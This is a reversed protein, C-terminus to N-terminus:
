KYNGFLVTEFTSEVRSFLIIMFSLVTLNPNNYELCFHTLVIMDCIFCLFGHFQCMTMIILGGDVQVDVNFLLDMNGVRNILSTHFSIVAAQDTRFSNLFSSVLCSSCGAISCILYLPFCCIGKDNHLQYVILHISVQM